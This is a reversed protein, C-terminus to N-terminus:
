LRRSYTEGNKTFGLPVLIKEWAKRPSSMSIFEFDMSRFVDMGDCLMKVLNSSTAGKYSALTTFFISVEDEAHFIFFCDDGYLGLHMEGQELQSLLFSADAGKIKHELRQVCPEIDAWFHWIAEPEVFRVM